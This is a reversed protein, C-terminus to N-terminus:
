VFELIDYHRVIIILIELYPFYPFIYSKCCLLTSPHESVVYREINFQPCFHTILQSFLSFSFNYPIPMYTITIQMHIYDEVLTLLEIITIYKFFYGFSFTANTGLVSHAKM